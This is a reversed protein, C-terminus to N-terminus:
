VEKYYQNKPCFKTKNQEQINLDIKLLKQDIHHLNNLNNNHKYSIMLHLHKMYNTPMRSYGYYQVSM